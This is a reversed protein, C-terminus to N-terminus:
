TCIMIAQRYERLIRDVKSGFISDLWPSSGYGGMILLNCDCDGAVELITGTVSGEGLVLEAHVDHSMLYEEAQELTDRGVRNGERVTLVVLPLDWNQALYTAVYLAEHARPSGDYALVAQSASSVYGPLVLTPRGSRRLLKRFGYGMGAFLKSNPPHKLSAVLLDTWYARTAVTRAISGSGMALTGSIGRSQIRKNFESQLHAWYGEEIESQTVHLGLVQANERKAVEVAYDVACWGELDDRVTVLINPFLCSSSRPEVDDRRWTGPAPGSELNDPMIRDFLRDRFRRVRASKHSGRLWAFNSAARATDVSWGMSEQLIERHETIWLYLDTVTRGPFDRLLGRDCIIQVVPLYVDDYWHTVAESYEIERQQENGMYHRHVAIHQLLPHLGGPVSFSLDAGPRLTDLHTRELFEVYEAKIILDQPRDDPTLPVKIPIETVYAEIHTNGIQRAVSVRHNGDRVFYTEGIRYVEIPPVGSLDSVAKKVRVWREQNADQLPLFERTFDSYRGASGVIADLPIEELGREM